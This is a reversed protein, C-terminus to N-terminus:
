RRREEREREEVTIIKDNSLGADVYVYTTRSLAVRERKRARNRLAKVRNLKGRHWVKTGLAGHQAQVVVAEQCCYHSLVFWKAGDGNDDIGYRRCQRYWRRRCPSGTTPLSAKGGSQVVQLDLTSTYGGGWRSNSEFRIEAVTRHLKLKWRIICIYVCVCVCLYVYTYIYESTALNSTELGSILWPSNRTCTARPAISVFILFTSILPFTHAPTERLQNWEVRWGRITFYIKGVTLPIPLLSSKM